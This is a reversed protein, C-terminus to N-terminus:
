GDDQGPLSGGCGRLPSWCSRQAPRRSFSSGVTGIAASMEFPCAEGLHGQLGDPEGLCGTIGGCPFAFLPFTRKNGGECVIKEPKNIM